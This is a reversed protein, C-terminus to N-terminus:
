RKFKVFDIEQCLSVLLMYKENLASTIKTQYYPSKAGLCLFNAITDLTCTELTKTQRM